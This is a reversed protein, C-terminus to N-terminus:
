AYFGCLQNIILRNYGGVHMKSLLGRMFSKVMALM